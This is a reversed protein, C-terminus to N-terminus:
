SFRVSTRNSPRSCGRFWVAPPAARIPAPRTGVEVMVTTRAQPFAATARSSDPLGFAERNRAEDPLTVSPRGLGRSAAGRYWTGPTDPHAPPAVCSDRLAPLPAAGPHTRARSISSTDSVRVSLDPSIWRLGDVVCRLVERVSDMPFLAMTIVHCVMVEAPLDRRRRSERGVSRLAARVAGRPYVRAIVNMGLCDSLRTGGPFGAATRAM